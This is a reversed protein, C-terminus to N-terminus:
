IRKTYEEIAKQTDQTVERIIDAEKNSSISNPRTECASHKPDNTEHIAEKANQTTIIAVMNTDSSEAVEENQSEDSISDDEPTIPPHQFIAFMIRAHQGVM